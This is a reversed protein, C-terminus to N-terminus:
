QWPRLGHLSCDTIGCHKVENRSYGCCEWCKANIAMRLSKPRASAKETPNLTAAAVVEGTKRKRNYEQLAATNNTM